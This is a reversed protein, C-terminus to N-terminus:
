GEELTYQSTIAKNANAPRHPGGLWSVCSPDAPSALGQSADLPGGSGSEPTETLHCASPVALGTEGRRGQRAGRFTVREIPTAWLLSNRTLPMRVHLCIDTSIGGRTIRACIYWISLCMYLHARTHPRSVRLRAPMTYDNHRTPDAIHEALDRM